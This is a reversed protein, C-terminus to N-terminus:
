SEPTYFDLEGITLKIVDDYKSALANFRRIGSIQMEQVSDKIFKNM